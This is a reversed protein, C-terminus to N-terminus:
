LIIIKLFSEYKFIYIDKELKAFSVFDVLFFLFFVIM